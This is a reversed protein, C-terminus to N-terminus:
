FLMVQGQIDMVTLLTTLRKGYFAPQCLVHFCVDRPVKIEGTLITAFNYFLLLVEFFMLSKALLVGCGGLGFSDLARITVPIISLLFIKVPMCICNMLAPIDSPVQLSNELLLLLLLLGRLLLRRFDAANTVRLAPSTVRLAPNIACLHVRTRHPVYWYAHDEWRTCLTLTIRLLMLQVSRLTLEASNSKTKRNNIKHIWSLSCAIFHVNQSEIKNTPRKLQLWM